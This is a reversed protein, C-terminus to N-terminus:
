NQPELLAATERAHRAPKGDDAQGAARGKAEDHWFCLVCLRGGENGRGCGKREWEKGKREDDNEEKWRSREKKEGGQDCQGLSVLFVVEGGTTAACLERAFSVKGWLM